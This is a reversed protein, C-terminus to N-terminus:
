ARQTSRHSALLDAIMGDIDRAPRWGITTRLRSADIRTIPVDSPRLRASDQEVAIPTNSLAMLRDLMSAITRPKGSAINFIARSPLTSTAALLALYADVVDRVDLFDRAADLNGVRMVPSQRGAEIAAIQAAFAPLVFDETQGPGSHNCPRAVILQNSQSLVDGLVWEAAQKSRAYPSLPAPPTDEDVVGHNFSAGYVEVSSGFLVTCDPRQARLAAALNLTGGVNVQWTMAAATASQGVSALAALHILLDPRTDAVLQEVEDARAIDVQATTVGELTRGKERVCATITADDAIAARLRPLLYSGVFGGAGTVLISRFDLRM